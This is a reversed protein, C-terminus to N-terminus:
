VHLIRALDEAYGAYIKQIPSEGSEKDSQLLLQQWSAAYCDHNKARDGM